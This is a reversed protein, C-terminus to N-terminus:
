PRVLIAGAGSAAIPTTDIQTGSFTSSGIPPDTGATQGIAVAPSQTLEVSGDGVIMITM